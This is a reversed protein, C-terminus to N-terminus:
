YAGGIDTLVQAAGPYAVGQARYNFCPLNWWVTTEVVAIDTVHFDKMQPSRKFLREAHFVPYLYNCNLLLVRPGAYQSSSTGDLTLTGESVYAGANNKYMAVTEMMEWRKVPIGNFLPDISGMDNYNGATRDPSHRTMSKMAARGKLSTRIKMNGLKNEEYYQKLMPPMEFECQMFLTDLANHLNDMRPGTGSNYTQLTNYTQRNPSWAGATEVTAPAVGEKNVWTGNTTDTYLGNAYENVHAFVSYPIATDTTGSTQNSREMANYNPVAGLQNEMGNNISNAERQEKLSIVEAFADARWPEAGMAIIPNLLVDVDRFVVHASAFSWPVFGKTLGSDENWNMFQGSKKPAFTGNEGFNLPVDIGVGQRLLKKDENGLYLEGWFYTHKSGHNLIHRPATAHAPGQALFLDVMEQLANGGSSVPM